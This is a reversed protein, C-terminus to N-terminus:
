GRSTRADARAIPQAMSGTVRIAEAHLKLCLANFLSPPM